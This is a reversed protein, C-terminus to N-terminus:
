PVRNRWDSEWQRDSEEEPTLMEGGCPHPGHAPPTYPDVELCYRETPLEAVVLTHERVRQCTLTIMSDM